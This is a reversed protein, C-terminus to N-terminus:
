NKERMIVLKKENKSKNMEQESKQNKKKKLIKLLNNQTIFKGFINELIKIGQEERM